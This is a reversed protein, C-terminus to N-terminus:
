RHRDQRAPHHPPRKEDKAGPGYGKRHNLVATLVAVAIVACVAGLIIAAWLFLAGWPIPYTWLEALGDQVKQFVEQLSM